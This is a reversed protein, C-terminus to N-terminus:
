SFLVMNNFVWRTEQRYGSGTWSVVTAMVFSRCAGRGTVATDCETRWARGANTWGDNAYGLPNNKWLPRPSWRYTLSNFVWGDTRVYRDGDRKITTGWIDTFCRATASYPECRTRWQRGNVTREGDVTYVEMMPRFGKAFRINYPDTTSWTSGSLTATVGPTIQWYFIAPSADAFRFADPGLAPVAAVTSEFPYPFGEPWTARIAEKAETPTGLRVEVSLGSGTVGPQEYRCLHPQAEALALRKGWLTTAQSSSLCSIRAVPPVGDAQAPQTALWPALLVGAVIATLASRLKM